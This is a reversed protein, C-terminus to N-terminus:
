GKKGTVSLPVIEDKEAQPRAQLMEVVTRGLVPHTWDPAIDALPVLVFSRDQVRPHPLILRDPTATQQVELPLEMWHRLTDLDPAVVDDWAILDLDLTRSAWRTMRKRGLEAEVRHLDALLAHPTADDPLRVSFVANVYDEGAGPPFAPTRYFRSTAVVEWGAEAVQKVATKLTM